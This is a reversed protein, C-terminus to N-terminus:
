IFIAYKVYKGQGGGSAASDIEVNQKRNLRQNYETSRPCFNALM